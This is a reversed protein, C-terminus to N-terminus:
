KNSQSTKRILTHPLINHIGLRMAEDILESKTHLKLKLKINEIHTQATSISINLIESLQRYTFGRCLYFLCEQERSSLHHRHPLHDDIILSFSQQICLHNDKSLFRFIDILGTHTVDIFNVLLGLINDQVIIPKKHGLLLKWDGNYQQYSLVKIEGKLALLDEQEFIVANKAPMCPMSAYDADFLQAPHSAGILKLTQKCASIFHSDTSVINSYGPFYDLNIQQSYEQLATKKPDTSM